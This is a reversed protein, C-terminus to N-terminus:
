ELKIYNNSKQQYLYYSQARLRELTSEDPTYPYATFGTYFMTEIPHNDDFLLVSDTPHNLTQPLQKRITVWEPPTRHNQLPKVREICFRVPLVILAILCLRIIWPYRSTPLQKRLVYWFQATVIFIAPAAILTYAQMKTAAVSFILYPLWFWVLLPLQSFVGKRADNITQWTFWLIPLYVLEGYNIRLRDFHFWWPHAHGELAEFLHLRNYALEYQAEAPFTALTYWQWPAAIGLALLGIILGYGFTSRWTWRSTAGNASLSWAITGWVALILLGPLWKTLIALGTCCGILLVMWAKARVEFFRYALFMGLSVWFAFITDVHDTAVRGAALEISLGHIAHFFAALLAIHKKKFCYWAIWYTFLISLTSLLISPLRLSWEHVGFVAFSGTILWLSLPQKHLWIHNSSWD